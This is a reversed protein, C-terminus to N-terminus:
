QLPQQELILVIKGSDAKITELSCNNFLPNAAFDDFTSCEYVIGDVVCDFSGAIRKAIFELDVTIDAL